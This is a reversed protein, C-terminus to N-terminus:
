QSKIREVIEFTHPLPHATYVTSGDPRTTEFPYRENLYRHIEAKTDAIMVVRGVADKLYYETQGVLM